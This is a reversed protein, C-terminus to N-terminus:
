PVPDRWELWHRSRDFQYPALNLLKFEHQQSKHFPWFTLNHGRQWLDATVRSLDKLISDRNWRLYLLESLPTQKGLACRLLGIATGSGAELWTCNGLESSIRLVAQCFYVPDQIHSALSASEVTGSTRDFTCKEVTMRPPLLQMPKLLDMMPEVLPRALSCHFANTVALPRWRLSQVSSTLISKCRDISLTTGALVFHEPGNYCAIELGLDGHKNMFDTLVDQRGEIALMSGSDEGWMDLILRARGAVLNLCEKLSIAGAVCLATLEGFSHGILRAPRLGCDIWTMASAYQGSFLVSHLLVVDGELDEEFIGPFISQWGQQLLITNCDNLHKRFVTCCDFLAKPVAPTNFGQGGFFMILPQQKCKDFTSKNSTSAVFSRLQECSSVTASATYALNPNRRRYLHYTIDKLPQDDYTKVKGLSDLLALCSLRMSMPSSATFSVPYTPIVTHQEFDHERSPKVDSAQTVVMVVNTGSAGYNNICAAKFKSNWNKPVLAIEIGSPELPGIDPNLTSFSVQAPIKEKQFMMLIKILSALGSAAETHGINSKVSGMYIKEGEPTVVRGFVERIAKVEIPDGVPTGTGHAEIYSIDKAQLGSFKLAQRYLRAQSTANPVTIRTENSNQNVATSAIIGLVTENNAIASSLKRLVLVAVGEGRCYGDADSDFARLEGTPSTFQGAALNQFTDPSIFINTAGVIAADCDNVALAKCAQHIAVGSAACAADYMMSPGTWGFHHSIKGAIFPRISGILSFATPKHTAVNEAYETACTAMFCATNKWLESANLTFYGSSELAQYTVELALRQQPDMFSAELSPVNFFKHDFNDVKNITHAKFSRAYDRRHFRHHPFRDEPLERCTSRGAELVEWFQEVSDTDSFKCAMGIVAVASDAFMPNSSTCSAMKLDQM